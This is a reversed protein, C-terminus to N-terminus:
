KTTSKRNYIEFYPHITYANDTPVLQLSLLVVNRLHTMQAHDLVNWALSCYGVSAFSLEFEDRLRAFLFAGCIRHKKM